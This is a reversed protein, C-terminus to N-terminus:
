ELAGVSIQEMHLFGDKKTIMFTSPSSSSPRSTGQINLHLIKPPANKKAV